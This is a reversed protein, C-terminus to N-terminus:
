DNRKNMNYTDHYLYVEGGKPKIPPVLCIRNEYDPSSLDVNSLIDWVEPLSFPKDKHMFVM